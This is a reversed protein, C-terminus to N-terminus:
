GFQTIVLLSQLDIYSSGKAERWNIFLKISHMHNQAIKWLWNKYPLAVTGYKIFNPSLFIQFLSRRTVLLKKVKISCIRRDNPACSRGCAYFLTDVIYPTVQRMPRADNDFSQTFMWFYPGVFFAFTTGGYTGINIVGVSERTKGRTWSM